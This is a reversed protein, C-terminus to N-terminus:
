ANITDNYYSLHYGKLTKGRGNCLKSINTAPIDLQRSCEQVSEFVTNLELCYVPKKNPYNQSLTKRKQESCPVHRQKAAESLKQKHEETLKKGKQAKSIKQKKEESCPHGLGNTNGKLKNSIKNKTESNMIFMEGGSTSNYGFNRDMSHFYQILEQEKQCAQEKTLNTYLINHEFNDWGYKQIANYFYPSTKYNSGNRGWRKEPVRSTIGIYIKGNIKNKHQYVIYM